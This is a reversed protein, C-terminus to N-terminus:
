AIQAFRRIWERLDPWRLHGSNNAVVMEGWKFFDLLKHSNRSSKRVPGCRFGTVIFGTMRMDWRPGNKQGLTQRLLESGPAQLGQKSACSPRGPFCGLVVGPLDFEGLISTRGVPKLIVPKLHGPRVAGLFIEPFARSIRFCKKPADM